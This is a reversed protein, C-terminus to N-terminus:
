LSKSLTQRKEKDAMLPANEDEDGKGKMTKIMCISIILAFSVGIFTSINMPLGFGLSANNLIFTVCVSTM